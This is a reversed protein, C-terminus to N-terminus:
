SPTESRAAEVAKAPRPRNKLGRAGWRSPFVPGQGGWGFRPRPRWLRAGRVSGAGTVAVFAGVVALVYGSYAGRTFGWASLVFWLALGLITEYLVPHLHDSVPGNTPDHASAKMTAWARAPENMAM